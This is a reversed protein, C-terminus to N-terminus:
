AAIAQLVNEITDIVEAGHERLPFSLVGSPSFKAQPNESIFM